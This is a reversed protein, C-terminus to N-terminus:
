FIKSVKKDSKMQNPVQSVGGWGINSSISDLGVQKPKYTITGRNQLALYAVIYKVTLKISKTADNSVRSSWSTSM